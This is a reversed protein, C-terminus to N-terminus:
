SGAARDHQTHDPRLRTEIEDLNEESTLPLTRMDIDAADHAPRSGRRDFEAAVGLAAALRTAVAELQELQDAFESLRIGENNASLIARDNVMLVTEERGELTRPIRVLRVAPPGQRETLKPGRGLVQYLLVALLVGALLFLISELAIAM